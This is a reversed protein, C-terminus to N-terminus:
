KSILNSFSAAHARSPLFSPFRKPLGVRQNERAMWENKRKGLKGIIKVSSWDCLFLYILMKRVLMKRRMVNENDSFTIETPHPLFVSITTSSGGLCCKVLRLPSRRCINALKKMFNLKLKLSLMSIKRKLIPIIEEQLWSYLQAAVSLSGPLIIVLGM